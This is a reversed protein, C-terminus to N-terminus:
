RNSQFYTVLRLRFPGGDHRGESRIPFPPRKTGAAPKEKELTTTITTINPRTIHRQPM